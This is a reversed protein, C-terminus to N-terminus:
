LIETSPAKILCSMLASLDNTCNIDRWEIMSVNQRIPRCKWVNTLNVSQIHTNIMEIVEPYLTDSYSRIVEM